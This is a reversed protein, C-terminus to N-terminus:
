VTTAAVVLALVEPCDDTTDYRRPQDAQVPQRRKGENPRNLTRKKRLHQTVEVTPLQALGHIGVRGSVARWVVVEPAVRRAKNVPAGHDRM